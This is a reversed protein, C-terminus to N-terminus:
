IAKANLEKKYLSEGGAGFYEIEAKGAAPDVRWMAFNFGDAYHFAGLKEYRERDAPTAQYRTFTAIPGAMFEPFGTKANTWDRAMHYDGTLFIVGSIKESRIFKSIEDRETKYMWWSDVGGGHFPVSTIVFKFPAASAKLRDKFWSKQAAGLMTKDATDEATQESRFRRTDLMFFDVGSWSFQRYIASPDVAKCPWYDKYAQLGQAMFPHTTNCNNEVEHDDWVAYTVHRAMFNQLHSDKRNAAHKYRYHSLSPSFQKKPHDAYITDGLHLFFDPRKSDIVDFLKFPRYSEEMDASFAFSFPVASAPATKFAGPAAMTQGSAVDVIRYVWSKGAALGALAVTACYDASKKLEAVPGANFKDSASQDAYEIRVSGEQDGCIWILVSDHTADFAAPAFALSPAAHATGVTTLALPAAVTAIQRIFRRRSPHDPYRSEHDIGKNKKM